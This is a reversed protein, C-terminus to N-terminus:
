PVVPICTMVGLVRMITGLFVRRREHLASVAGKHYKGPSPFENSGGLGSPIVFIDQVAPDLSSKERSIIWDLSELTTSMVLRVLATAPGSQLNAYWGFLSDLSSGPPSPIIGGRQSGEFLNESQGVPRLPTGQIALTPRGSKVSGKTNSPLPSMSIRM